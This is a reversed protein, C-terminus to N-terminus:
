RRKRRAPRPAPTPKPLAAGPPVLWLEITKFRRRGGGLAVVRSVDIAHKRAMTRKALAAIRRDATRAGGWSTYAIVCGRLGPDRRLVEAFFDYTGASDPHPELGYASVDGDGSEVVAFRDFLLPTRAGSMLLSSDFPKVDLEAGAPVVWLEFTPSDGLKGNVISLRSAELGRTTVLYYLADRGRRLPWGPFKGGAPYVAIVGRAAPDNQLEIAFNDLRAILDSWQIEGFSDILRAGGHTPQQRAHLPAASLLLLLSITAATRM